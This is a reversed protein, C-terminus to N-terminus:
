GTYVSRTGEVAGCTAVVALETDVAEPGYREATVVVLTVALPADELTEVALESVEKESVRVTPCNGNWVVVTVVVTVTHTPATPPTM